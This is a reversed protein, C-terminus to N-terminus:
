KIITWFFFGFIGRRCMKEIKLYNKLIGNKKLHIKLFEKNKQIKIETKKIIKKIIIFIWELIYTFM